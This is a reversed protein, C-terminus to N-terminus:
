FSITLLGASFNPLREMANAFEAPSLRNDGDTDGAQITQMAITELQSDPLNSGVLLKLIHIVEDATIYGDGQVDYLRFAFDIKQQLPAKPSFVSLTEVFRRFTILGDPSNGAFVAILRPLLPNM